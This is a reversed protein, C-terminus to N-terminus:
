ETTVLEPLKLTAPTLEQPTPRAFVSAIVTSAGGAKLLENVAVTQEPLGNAYVAVLELLLEVILQDLATTGPIELAVAVDIVPLILSVNTM